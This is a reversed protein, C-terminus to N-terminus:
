AIVCVTGSAEQVIVRARRTARTREDPSLHRPEPVGGLNEDCPAAAMKETLPMIATHPVNPAPIPMSPQLVRDAAHLAVRVDPPRVAPMPM